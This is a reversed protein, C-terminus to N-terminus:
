LLLNLRQSPLRFFHIPDHEPCSPRRSHPHLPSPLRRDHQRLHQLGRVPCVLHRQSTLASRFMMKPIRPHLISATRKMKSLHPRVLSNPSAMLRRLHRSNSRPPASPRALHPFNSPPHWMLLHRLKHHLLMLTLIKLLLPPVSILSHNFSRLHHFRLRGPSLSRRTRYVTMAGQFFSIHPVRERYFGLPPLGRLSSAAM